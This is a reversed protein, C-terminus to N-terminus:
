CFNRVEWQFLIDRDFIELLQVLVCFTAGSPQVIAVMGKFMRAVHKPFRFVSPDTVDGFNRAGAAVKVAGNSSHLDVCGHVPQLTQWSIQIARSDAHSFQVSIEIGSHVVPVRRKGGGYVRHIEGFEFTEEEVAERLKRSFFSVSINNDLLKRFGHSYITGNPDLVGIVVEKVGSSIILDSCSEIAQESHLNVCPELTTYVTTGFRRELTLKELAVREAHLKGVEGRHGTSLVQGEMAVVAGVRPYESCKLHEEIALKM